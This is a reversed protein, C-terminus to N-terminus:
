EDRPGGAGGLAEGLVDGCDTADILPEEPLSAMDQWPQPAPAPTAVIPEAGSVIPRLAGFRGGASLEADAMAHQHYTAGKPEGYLWIPDSELFGQAKISAKLGEYEHGDMMPFENAIPHPRLTAPDPPLTPGILKDLM